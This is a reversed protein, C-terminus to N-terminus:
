ALFSEPATELKKRDEKGDSLELSLKRGDRDSAEKGFVGTKANNPDVPSDTSATRSILMLGPFVIRRIPLRKRNPESKRNERTEKRLGMPSLPVSAGKTKIGYKDSSSLKEDSIHVSSEFLMDM